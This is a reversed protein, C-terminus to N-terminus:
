TIVECFSHTFDIPVFGAERSTKMLEKWEPDSFKAERCRKMAEVSEFTEVVVWRDPPANTNPNVDVYDDLTIMLTKNADPFNKEYYKMIRRMGELYQERKDPNITFIEVHSVM